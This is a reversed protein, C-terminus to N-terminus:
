PNVRRVRRIVIDEAPVDNLQGDNGTDVAAIQDVVELGDIVRGFVTFPPPGTDLNPNDKLNIFIQSTASDADQGRLAFAITGEVNSEGNDAESMVPERIGESEVLPEGKVERRFGGMQIVFDEVVRHWVIGSYFSDDVYRLFNACTAPAINTNLEILIDGEVGGENEIVIQPRTSPVGVVVQRGETIVEGDPNRVEVKLVISDNSNITAITQADNPSEFDAIGNSSSWSYNADVPVGDASVSLEVDAGVIQIPVSATITATPVDMTGNTDADDMGNTDADEMGNTDVSRIDDPPSVPIKTEARMVSSMVVDENPQDQMTDPDGTPLAVIEDAVDMGEVVRAFVTFPPDGDDLESNDDLNIFFQNSGSNEDTGRLAMSIASRLNSFGNFAESAIMERQGPKERVTGNFRDFNGTQIVFDTVIRHWIIGEYYGDDVYRLFNACTNPAAETLLELVMRGNVAGTNEIIVQPATDEIGVVFVDQVGFREIGNEEGSISVRLRVSDASMITARPNRSAPNDLEADGNVVSWAYTLEGFGSTDTDLVADLETTEGILRLSETSTATIELDGGVLVRVFSANSQGSRDTALVRFLYPGNVALPGVQILASTNADTLEFTSEDPQNELSWRFRYPTLGGTATALLEFREDLPVVLDPGADADLKESQPAVILECAAVSLLTCALALYYTPRIKVNHKM